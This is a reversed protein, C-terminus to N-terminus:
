YPEIHIIVDKLDPKEKILAERLETAIIHGQQVTLDKDVSISVDIIYHRGVPHIRLNSCGRVGNYKTIFDRIENVLEESPLADMVIKNSEKMTDLGMKIIFGSIVLGAIPDLFRWGYIAGIIGILAGISSFADSRHDYANAKLVPSNLVKGIHITYRYLIEKLIISTVAAVAAIKTPVTYQGHYCTHIASYGLYIGTLLLLVAVMWSVIIEINEHGYPHERDEPKKSLKLAIYTIVTAFGDSLSHIADALMAQSHGFIGAIFKFLTLLGNVILGIITCVYEDKFNIRELM